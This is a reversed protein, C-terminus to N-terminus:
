DDNVICQSFFSFVFIKLAPCSLAKFGSISMGRNKHCQQAAYLVANFAPFMSLSFHTFCCRLASALKTFFSFSLFLLAATIGGICGAAPGEVFTTGGGIGRAVRGLVGIGATGTCSGGMALASGLTLEAGAFNVFCSVVSGTGLVDAARGVGAAGSLFGFIGLAGFFTTGM